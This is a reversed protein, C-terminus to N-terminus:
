YGDATLGEGEGDGGEEEDGEFEWGEREAEEEGHEEQSAQAQTQSAPARHHKSRKGTKKRSPDGKRKVAKLISVTRERETDLHLNAQAIQAPTLTPPGRKEEKLSLLAEVDESVVGSGHIILYQTFCDTIKNDM